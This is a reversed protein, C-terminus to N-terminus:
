QITYTASKLASWGDNTAIARAKLTETGSITVATGAYQPSSTTPTTGNTTYYIIAGTTADTISVQQPGTYTGTKLSFIPTATPPEVSYLVTKTITNGANDTGTVTFTQQGLMSSSTNISAGNAVTGACSAVGSTKDICSYSAVVSQNLVYIANNTPKMVAVTPAVTDKKIIVSDGYSGLENTASCMYTTGTTDPVPVTNCGSKVPAPKGSVAWELTTPRSVYWGNTGLTGTVTPVVTPAVLSTVEGISVLTAPAGGVAFGNPDIVFITASGAIKENGLDREFLQLNPRDTILETGPVLVVRNFSEATLNLEFFYGTVGTASVDYLNAFGDSIGIETGEDSALCILSAGNDSLNDIVGLSIAPAGNISYSVSRIAEPYLSGNAPLYGQGVASCDGGISSLPTGSDFTFFVTMSQGAIPSPANITGVARYTIDAASAAASVALACIALALGLRKTIERAPSRLAIRKATKIM